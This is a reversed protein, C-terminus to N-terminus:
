EDDVRVPRSDPSTFPRLLRSRVFLASFRSVNGRMYYGYVVSKSRNRVAATHTTGDHLRM